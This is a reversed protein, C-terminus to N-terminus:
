RLVKRKITGAFRRYAVHSFSVTRMLQLATIRDGHKMAFRYSTLINNLIRQVRNHAHPLKKYRTLRIHNNILQKRYSWADLRIREAQKIQNSENTVSISTEHERYMYLPKDINALKGELSLRLWFDYDEAPWYDQRYLGAAIAASKRFVVSGHAFPSRILLEQRLEPDDLLVRHNHLVSGKNDIVKVSSGVVVYAPHDQLFKIQMSFRDKISLDDADQRAILNASALSIGENLSAVLGKNERSIIRIRTDQKAYKQIIQLSKDTSGDNIILLEFDKFRQQLVSKIADAIYPEANYVPLIVSLSVDLPLGKPIHM